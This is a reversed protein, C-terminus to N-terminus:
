VSGGRGGISMLVNDFVKRRFANSRLVTGPCRMEHALTKVWDSTLAATVTAGHEALALDFEALYVEYEKKSADKRRTLQLLGKVSFQDRPVFREPRLFFALKSALSVPVGNLPTWGKGAIEEAAKTIAAGDNDQAIADRFPGNFYDLVQERHIKYTSRAVRWEALFADFWDADFPERTPLRGKYQDETWFRIANVVALALVRRSITNM